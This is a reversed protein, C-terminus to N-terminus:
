KIAKKKYSMLVEQLVLFQGSYWLGQYWILFWFKKLFHLKIHALYKRPYWNAYKHSMECAMDDRQIQLAQTSYKHSANLEMSDLSHDLGQM